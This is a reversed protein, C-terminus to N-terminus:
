SERLKSPAYSRTFVESQLSTQLLTTARMLLKGVTHQVDSVHLSIPDIGSKEPPLNGIQSEAKRKAMVEIESTWIPLALM